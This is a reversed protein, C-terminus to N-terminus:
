FCLIANVCVWLKTKLQQSSRSTCTKGCLLNWQAALNDPCHQLHSFFFFGESRVVTTAVMRISFLVLDLLDHSVVFM